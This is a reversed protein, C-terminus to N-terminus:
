CTGKFAKETSVPPVLLDKEKLDAATPILDQEQLSCPPHCGMASYGQPEDGGSLPHTLEADSRLEAQHLLMRLRPGLGWRLVKASTGSDWPTPRSQPSGHNCM